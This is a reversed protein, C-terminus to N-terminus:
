RASRVPITKLVKRAVAAARGDSRTAVIELFQRVIEDNCHPRLHGDDESIFVEPDFPSCISHSSVYPIDHRELTPHLVQYLHDAEGRGHFLLVVPLRGDERAKRAFEQVIEGLVEVLESGPHFGKPGIFSNQVSSTKRGSAGRQVLRGVMSRDLASARYGIASYYADNEAVQDFFRGLKVPDKLAEDWQSSTRVHPWTAELKGDEVRYRPFTYPLPTHWYYGASSMGLIGKITGSLLGLVCVEASHRDRDLEFAALSHNPPASPGTILRVALEPATEQLKGMAYFTFSQGYAAILGQEGEVPQDSWSEPELWGARHPHREKRFRGEWGLRLKEEVSLGRALYRAIKGGTGRVKENLLAYEDHQQYFAQAGLEFVLVWVVMGLLTALIRGRHHLLARVVQVGFVGRNAGPDEVESSTSETSLLTENM